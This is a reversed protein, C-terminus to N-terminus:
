KRKGRKKKLCARCRLCYRWRRAEGRPKVPSVRAGCIAMVWGSCLTWHHEIHVKGM